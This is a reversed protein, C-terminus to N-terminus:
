MRKIKYDFFIQEITERVISKGRSMQWESSICVRNSFYFREEEIIENEYQGRKFSEHVYIIYRISLFFFFYYYYHLSEVRFYPNISPIM